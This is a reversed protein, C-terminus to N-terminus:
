LADEGVFDIAYEPFEPQQNVGHVGMNLIYSRKTVWREGQRLWADFLDMTLGHQISLLSEPGVVGKEAHFSQGGFGFDLTGTVENFSVHSIRPEDIRCARYDPYADFGERPFCGGGNFSRVLVDDEIRLTKHFKEYASRYVWWAKASPHRQILERLRFLWHRNYLWDLTLMGFYSVDPFHEALYKFGFLLCGDISAADAPETLGVVEFGPFVAKSIVVATEPNPKSVIVLVPPKGLGATVSRGLSATSAEALRHRFTNWIYAPLVFGFRM